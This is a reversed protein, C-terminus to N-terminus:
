RTPAPKAAVGKEARSAADYAAANAEDEEIGQSAGAAHLRKKKTRTNKLVIDGNKDSDLELGDGDTVFGGLMSEAVSDECM